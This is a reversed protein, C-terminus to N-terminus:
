LQINMITKFSETAKTVIASTFEIEQQAKALKVQMFLFDAPSLSDKKAGLSVLDRKVSDIQSMGDTVYSIFHGIPGSSKGEKKNEELDEKSRSGRSDSDEKDLASGIRTNVSHMGNEVSSLKNKVLYKQSPKLKLNPNAMQGQLNLMSNQLLNVQSLLTQPTVQPRPSGQALDFPSIMKSTAANASDNKQMLNSFSQATASAPTTGATSATTIAKAAQGLDGPIRPESMINRKALPKSIPFM